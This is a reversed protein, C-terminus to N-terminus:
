GNMFSVALNLRDDVFACACRLPFRNQSDHAPLVRIRASGYEINKRSHQRGNVLWDKGVDIERDINLLPKGFHLDLANDIHAAFGDDIRNGASFKAAADIERIAKFVRQRLHSSPPRRSAAFDLELKGVGISLEGLQVETLTPNDTSPLSAAQM